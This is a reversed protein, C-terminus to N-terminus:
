LLSKLAEALALPTPTPQAVMAAVPLPVSSRFKKARIRLAANIVHVSRGGMGALPERSGSV